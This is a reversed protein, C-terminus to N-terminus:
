AVTAKALAGSGKLSFSCTVTDNYPSDASLSTLLANGSYYTDGSVETSFKVAVEAKAIFADFLMEFNNAGQVYLAEGECTWKLTTMEAEEWAGITASSATRTDGEMSLSHSQSHAVATGAIYILLASGNLSTAM